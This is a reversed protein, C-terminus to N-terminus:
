DKFDDYVRDLTKSIKLYINIIYGNLPKKTSFKWWKAFMFLAM